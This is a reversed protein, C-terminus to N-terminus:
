MNLTCKQYNLMYQMDYSVMVMVLNSFRGMVDLFKRTNKQTYIYTDAHAHTQTYIHIHTCTRTNTDAHKFFVVHSHNKLYIKFDM